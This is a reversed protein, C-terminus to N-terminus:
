PHPESNQPNALAQDRSPRPIESELHLRFPNSQRAMGAALRKDFTRALIDLSIADQGAQRALLASMTILNVIHAIVGGTAQHIRYLLEATELEASFPMGATNVASKVFRAFLLCAAPDHVDFTFPQLTERTAFLRRLEPNTDLIQGITGEIGIVLFPIRTEKILVKLWNSVKELVRRTEADILHHFDDLIVFEVACSRMFHILRGDMAWQTGRNYAPDGLHRLMTAAMGKTTVPAPTQVYLIPVKTGFPTEQRTHLQLYSQVLTTKGTGTAGELVMCHAEGSLHSMQRCLHIDQHLEELRPYRILPTGGAFSEPTM